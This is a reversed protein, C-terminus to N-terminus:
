AGVIPTTSRWAQVVNTPMVGNRQAFKVPAVQLAENKDHAQVRVVEPVGNLMVQVCYEEPM